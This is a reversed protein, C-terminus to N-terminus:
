CLLSLILPVYLCGWSPGGRMNISVLIHGYLLSYNIFPSLVQDQKNLLSHVNRCSLLDPFFNMLINTM